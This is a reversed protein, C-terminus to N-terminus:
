LFLCRLTQGKEKEMQLYWSFAMHPCIPFATMQWGPLSAKGSGVMSAAQDQVLKYLSSRPCAELSGSSHPFLNGNNLGSLRYYETVAAWALWTLWVFPSMQCWPAVGSWRPCYYLQSCIFDPPQLWVSPHSFSFSGLLFLCSLSLWHPLFIASHSPDLYGPFACTKLVPLPRAHWTSVFWTLPPSTWIHHDRTVKVLSIEM